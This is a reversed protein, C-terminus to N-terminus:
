LSLSVGFRYSRPYRYQKWASEPAMPAHWNGGVDKYPRTFVHLTSPDNYRLDREGGKARRAVVYESYNNGSLMNRRANWLNTVDLSFSVYRGGPLPFGKRLRMDSNWYDVRQMINAEPLMERPMREPNYVVEGGERWTQIVSLSWGGRLRGWEGPTRVGVLAQFNDPSVSNVASAAYLANSAMPSNTVAFLGVNGSQTAVFSYTAWGYLFRRQNASLKIELGHVNMCGVNRTSSYVQGGLPRISLGGTLDNSYKAYGTVTLLMRTAPFMQEVGVEYSTTRPPRLDANMNRRVDATQSGMPASYYEPGYLSVPPPASYSHGYNFFLKAEDSV